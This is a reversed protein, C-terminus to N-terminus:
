IEHQPCKNPVNTPELLARQYGHQLYRKTCTQEVPQAISTWLLLIRVMTAKVKNEAAEELNVGDSISNVREMKRSYGQDPCNWKISKPLYIMKLSVKHYKYMHTELGKKTLSEKGCFECKIMGLVFLSYSCSWKCSGAGKISEIIERHQKYEHKRLSITTSGVHDCFKCAITLDKLWSNLQLSGM